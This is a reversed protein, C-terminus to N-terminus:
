RRRPRRRSECAKGRETASRRCHLYTRRWGWCRGHPVSPTPRRPRPKRPSAIPQMPQHIRSPWHKELLRRVSSRGPRAQASFPLSPQQKGSVPKGLPRQHRRRRVHHPAARLRHPPQRHSRGGPDRHLYVRVSNPSNPFNSPNPFQQPFLSSLLPTAFTGAPM